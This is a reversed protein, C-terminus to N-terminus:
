SKPNGWSGSALSKDIETLKSQNEGYFCYYEDHSIECIIGQDQSAVICDWFFELGLILISIAEQRETSAFLHGSAEDLSRFEGLAMRTSMLLPLHSSSPFINWEKVWILTNSSDEFYRYIKRALAVKKGSDAPFAYKIQPTKARQGQWNVFQMSERTYHFRLWDICENRTIAKM